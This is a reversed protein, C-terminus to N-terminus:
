QKYPNYNGNIDQSYSNPNYYDGYGNNRYQPYDQNIGHYVMNDQPNIKNIMYETAERSGRSYGVRYAIYSFLVITFFTFM